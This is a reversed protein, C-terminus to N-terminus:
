ASTQLHSLYYTRKNIRVSERDLEALDGAGHRSIWTETIAVVIAMEPMGEKPNRWTDRSRQTQGIADGEEQSQTM